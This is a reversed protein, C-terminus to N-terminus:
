KKAWCGRIVICLMNRFVANCGLVLATETEQVHGHVIQLESACCFCDAVSEQLLFVPLQRSFHNQRGHVVETHGLGVLVQLIRYLLCGICAVLRDLYTRQSAIDEVRFSCLNIRLLPKDRAM